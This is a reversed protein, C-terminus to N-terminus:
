GKAKEHLLGNEDEEEYHSFKYKKCGDMSFVHGAFICEGKGLFHADKDDGCKCIPVKRGKM